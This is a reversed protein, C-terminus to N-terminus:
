LRASAKRTISTAYGRSGGLDFTPEVVVAVDGRRAVGIYWGPYGSGASGSGVYILLSEDGTFNRAVIRAHFDGPADKPTFDACRAVQARVEDLFTAAAGSRYRTASEFGSSVPGGAFM